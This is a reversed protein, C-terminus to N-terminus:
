PHGLPPLLSMLGQFLQDMLFMVVVRPRVVDALLMVTEEEDLACCKFARYVVCYATLLGLEVSGGWGRAGGYQCEGGGRKVGRSRDGTV